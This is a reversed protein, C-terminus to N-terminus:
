VELFGQTLLNFQFNSGVFVTSPYSLSQGLFKLTLDHPSKKAPSKNVYKVGQYEITDHTEADFKVPYFNANIYAAINPDSYTTKMMHKCWGCWDTYFDIIFPKPVVKNKEQAEKFTLWKVLGEESQAKLFVPIIFLLLIKTKM